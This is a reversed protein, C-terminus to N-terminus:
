VLNVSFSGGSDPIDFLHIVRIRVDILLPDGIPEMDLWTNQLTLTCGQPQSQPPLLPGINLADIAGVYYVLAIILILVM